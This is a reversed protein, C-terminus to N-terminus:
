AEKMLRAARNVTQGMVDEVRRSPHGIEGVLVEGTAVAVHYGLTLPGIDRRFAAVIERAAHVAEAPDDFSFLIADGIYKRIRGGRRIIVDGAAVFGEQLVALAGESGLMEVARDYHTMDAFGISLVQKDM